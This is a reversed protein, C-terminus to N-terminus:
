QSFPYNRYGRDPATMERRIKELLSRAEEAFAARIDPNHTKSLCDCLTTFSADIRDCREEDVPTLRGAVRAALLWDKWRQRTRELLEPPVNRTPAARGASECVPQTLTMRRKREKRLFMPVPRLAGTGTARLVGIVTGVVHSRDETARERLPLELVTPMRREGVAPPAVRRISPGHSGRTVVLSGAQDRAGPEVIVLDAEELGLVGFAAVKVRLAYLRRRQWAGPPLGLWNEVRRASLGDPAEGLARGRGPETHGDGTLRASDNLPDPTSEHHKRASVM